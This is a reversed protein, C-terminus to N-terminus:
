PVLDGTVILLQLFHSFGAEPETPSARQCQPRQCLGSTYYGPAQVSIDWERAGELADGICDPCIWLYTTGEARKSLMGKMISCNACDEPVECIGEVPPGCPNGESDVDGGNSLWM